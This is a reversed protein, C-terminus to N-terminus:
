AAGHAPGAMSNSVLGPQAVAGMQLLWSCPSFSRSHEALITYFIWSFPFLLADSSKTFELLSTNQPWVKPHIIPTMTTSTMIIVIM